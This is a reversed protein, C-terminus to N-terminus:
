RLEASGEIIDIQHQESMAHLRNAQGGNLLPPGDQFPRALIAAERADKFPRIGGM